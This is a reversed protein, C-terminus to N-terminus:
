CHKSTTLVSDTYVCSVKLGERVAPDLPERHAM